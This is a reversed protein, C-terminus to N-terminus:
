RPRPSRPPIPPRQTTADQAQPPRSPGLQRARLSRTPTDWPDIEHEGSFAGEISGLTSPMSQTLVEVAARVEADTALWHVPLEQIADAMAQVNAFRQAPDSSVAHLVLQVLPEPNPMLSRVGDTGSILATDEVNEIRRGSVLEWLLAGAAFVDDHPTSTALECAIGADSLLTEGFSAVWATDRFLCRPLTKMGFRGLEDHAAAVALLSDLTVRLAVEPVMSVAAAQLARILESLPLGDVYESVIFLQGEIRTVGLTKLLRPHAISTARTLATELGAYVHEDLARLVVPRGAERGGM